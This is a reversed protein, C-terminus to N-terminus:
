AGVWTHGLSRRHAHAGSCWWLLQQAGAPHAGLGPHRGRFEAVPQVQPMAAAPLRPSSKLARCHGDKRRQGSAGQATRGVRSVLLHLACHVRGAHQLQLVARGGTLAHARASLCRCPAHTVRAVARWTQGRGLGLQHPPARVQGLLLMCLPLVMNQWLMLLLSPLWGTIIQSLYRAVFSEKLCFWPRRSSAPCLSNAM